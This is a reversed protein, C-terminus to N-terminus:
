GFIDKVKGFLGSSEEEAQGDSADAFQQLLEKQQKNLKTPTVVTIAVLQDGQGRGGLSVVGRGKLRFVTGTQTGEPMKLKENGQLTPITIEAGLAAQPFSM